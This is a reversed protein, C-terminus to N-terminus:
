FFLFLDTARTKNLFIKTKEKVKLFKLSVNKQKAFINKSSFLDDFSFTRKRKSKVFFNFKTNLSSLLVDEIKAHLKHIIM